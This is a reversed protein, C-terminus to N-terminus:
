KYYKLGKFLEYLERLENIKEVICIDFGNVQIATEYFEIRNIIIELMEDIAYDYIMKEM